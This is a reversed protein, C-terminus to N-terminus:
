EKGQLRGFPEALVPQQCHTSRHRAVLCDSCLMSPPSGRGCVPRSCGVLDFSEDFDAVAGSRHDAAAGCFPYPRCAPLPAPLALCRLPDRSDMSIYNKQELQARCFGRIARGIRRSASQIAIGRLSAAATSCPRRFGAACRGQACAWTCARRSPLRPARATVLRPAASPTRGVLPFLVPFRSADLYTGLVCFSPLKHKAKAMCFSVHSQWDAQWCHMSCYRAVSCGSCLMSLPSWGCVLRSCGGLHLGEEVDAAAGLRYGATAGCLPYSRCASHRSARLTWSSGSFGDFHFTTSGRQGACARIAIGIRRSANRAATSRSSAPAAYYPRRPDAVCQDQASMWTWTRRSTLRTPSSQDGCLM